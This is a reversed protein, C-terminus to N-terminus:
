KSELGEGCVSKHEPVSPLVCPKMEGGGAVGGLTGETGGGGASPTVGGDWFVEVGGLLVEGHTPQPNRCCGGGAQEKEHQLWQGERKGVLMDPFKCPV